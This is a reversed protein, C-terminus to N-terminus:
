ILGYKVEMAERVKFQLEPAESPLNMFDEYELDEDVGLECELGVFSSPLGPLRSVSEMAKREARMRMAM